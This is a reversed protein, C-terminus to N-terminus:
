CHSLFEDLEDNREGWANEGIGGRQNGRLTENEVKLADREKEVSRIYEIASCLVMAKSPRPQGMVGREDTQVLTPVARRLRELESNLGERYKREVQNHPLRSSRQCKTFSSPSTNPQTETSSRDLRPRGRKRLPRKPMSSSSSGSTPSSSSERKLNHPSLSPSMTQLPADECLSPPPFQSTTNTEPSFCNPKYAQAQPLNSSLGSPYQELHGFSAVNFVQRSDTNSNTASIGTAPLTPNFMAEPKSSTDSAMEISTLARDFFSDSDFFNNLSYDPTTIYLEDLYPSEFQNVYAMPYQSPSRDAKAVNPRGSPSGSPSGSLDM